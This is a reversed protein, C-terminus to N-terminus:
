STVWKEQTHDCAICQRARVWDRYFGGQSWPTYWKGWQHWGFRCTWPIPQRNPPQPNDNRRVISVVKDNM